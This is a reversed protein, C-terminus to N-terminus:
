LNPEGQLGLIKRFGTWYGPLRPPKQLGALAEEAWRTMDSQVFERGWELYASADAPQDLWDLWHKRLRIGNM